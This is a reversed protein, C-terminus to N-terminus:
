RTRRLLFYPASLPAFQAAHVLAVFDDLGACNAESM